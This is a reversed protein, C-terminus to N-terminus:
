PYIVILGPAGGYPSPSNRQGGAIPDNDNPGKPTSGTRTEFIQTVNDPDIYGSGGGGGGNSMSGISSTYYYVSDYRSGNGGVYGGGGGGGPIYHYSGGSYWYLGGAGGNGIGRGGAFGGYYM